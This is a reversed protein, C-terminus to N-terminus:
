DELKGGPGMYLMTSIRSHEFVQAPRIRKDEQMDKVGCRRMRMIDETEKDIEGTQEVGAFAQLKTIATDLRQLSSSIGNGARTLYGYRALYSSAMDQDGTLEVTPALLLLTVTVPVIPFLAM